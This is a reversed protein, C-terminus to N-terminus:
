GIASLPGVESIEVVQLLSPLNFHHNDVIEKGTMEM